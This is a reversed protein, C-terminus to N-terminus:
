NKDWSFLFYGWLISNQNLYLPLLLEAACSTVQTKHLRSHPGESKKFYGALPCNRPEFEDLRSKAKESNSDIILILNSPKRISPTRIM